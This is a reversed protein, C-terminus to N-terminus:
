PAGHQHQGDRGEEDAEEWVDQHRAEKKGGSISKEASKEVGHFFCSKRAVPPAQLRRTRFYGAATALRLYM